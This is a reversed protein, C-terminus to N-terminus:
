SRLAFESFPVSLLSAAFSFSVSVLRTCIPLWSVAGACLGGPPSHRSVALFLSSLREAGHDCRGSHSAVICNALLDNTATPLSLHPLLFAPAATVRSQYVAVVM